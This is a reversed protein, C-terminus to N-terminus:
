KVSLKMKSLILEEKERMIKKDRDNMHDYGLLHLLGHCCMYAMERDLSNGIKQAQKKIRKYCLCIDGMMVRKSEPNIDQKYKKAVTKYDVNTTIDLNPFSLVDTVKNTLRKEKNIKKIQKPTCFMVNMEFLSKPISLVREAKAFSTNMLEIYKKYKKENIYNVQM